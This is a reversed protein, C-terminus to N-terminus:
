HGPAEAKRIASQIQNVLRITFWEADDYIPEDAHGDYVDDLKIEAETLVQRCAALLDRAAEVLLDKNM